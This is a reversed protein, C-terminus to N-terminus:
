GQEALVIKEELLEILGQFGDRQLIARYETRKLALDSVGDALINIIQWGDNGQQLVYDFDVTDGDSKIFQSRVLVQDRPLSRQQLLEFQEGEYEKFQGAYTAISLQRFTDVILRQQESDLQAWYGGLVTRVILNFNHSQDVAPALFDFREQFNMKDGERMAHILANQLNNVTQEPGDTKANEAWSLPVILLVFVVTLIYLTLKIIRNVEM